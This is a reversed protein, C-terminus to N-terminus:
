TRLGDKTWSMTETMLPPVKIVTEKMTTWNVMSIQTREM